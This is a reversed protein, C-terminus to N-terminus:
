PRFRRRRDLRCRVFRRSSAITGLDQSETNTSHNEKRRCVRFRSVLKYEPHVYRQKAASEIRDM